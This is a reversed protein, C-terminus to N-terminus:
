FNESYFKDIITEVAKLSFMGGEGARGKDTRGIWIKKPDDQQALRYRGIVVHWLPVPYPPIARKRSIMGAVDRQIENLSMEMSSM